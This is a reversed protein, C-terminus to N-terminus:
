DNALRVRRSKELERALEQVAHTRAHVGDPAIRNDILDTIRRRLDNREAATTGHREAIREAMAKTFRKPPTGNLLKEAAAFDKSRRSDLGAMRLLARVAAVEEQYPGSEDAWRGVGRPVDIGMREGADVVRGPWRALVEAKGESIWPAPADSGVHNLEHLLTKVGHGLSSRLGPTLETRATGPHELANVLGRSREPGLHLWPGKRVAVTDSIHRRAMKLGAEYAETTPAVGPGFHHIARNALYGVDSTALTFGKLPVAEAGSVRHALELVGQVFRRTEPREWLEAATRSDPRVDAIDTSGARLVRFRVQDRLVDAFDDGALPASKLFQSWGTGLKTGISPVSPM